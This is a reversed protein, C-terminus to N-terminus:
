PEPAPRTEGIDDDNREITDSERHMALWSGVTMLMSAALGLYAGVAVDEIEYQNAPDLIRIVILLTAVISATTSVVSAVLSVSPSSQTLVLLPLLIAFVAALALVIDIFSYAQWASVSGVGSASYWDFFMLLLLFLGGFGALVESGHIRKFNM